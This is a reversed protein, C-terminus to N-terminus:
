YAIVSHIPHRITVVRLDVDLHSTRVQLAWFLAPAFHVVLPDGKSDKGLERESFGELFTQPFVLSTHLVAMFMCILGLGAERFVPNSGVRASYARAMCMHIHVM